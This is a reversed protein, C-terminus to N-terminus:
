VAPAPPKAVLEFGMEAARRKMNKIAKLRYSEEQLDQKKLM